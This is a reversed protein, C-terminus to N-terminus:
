LTIIVLSFIFATETKSNGAIYVKFEFEKLDLSEGSLVGLCSLLTSRQLHLQREKCEEQSHDSHRNSWFNM